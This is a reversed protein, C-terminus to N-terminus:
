PSVRRVQSAVILPLSLFADMLYQRPSRYRESLDGMVHERSVPPVLLRVISEIVAPPRPHM